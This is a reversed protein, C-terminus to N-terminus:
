RDDEAASNIIVYVLHESFHLDGGHQPAKWGCLCRIERGESRREYTKVYVPAHVKLVSTLWDRVFAPQSETATRSETVGYRETAWRLVRRRAETDLEGIRAIVELEPDLTM